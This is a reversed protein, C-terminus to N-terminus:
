KHISHLLNSDMTLTNESVTPM